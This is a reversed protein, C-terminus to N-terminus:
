RLGAELYLLAGDLMQLNLLKASCSDSRECYVYRDRQQLDLSCLNVRGEYVKRSMTANRLCTAEIVKRNIKHRSMM